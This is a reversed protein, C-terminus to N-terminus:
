RCSAHRPHVSSTCTDVASASSNGNTLQHQGNQRVRCSDYRFAANVARLLFWAARRRPGLVLRAARSHCSLNALPARDPPTPLRPSPRLLRCDALVDALADGLRDGAPEPEAANDGSRADAPEGRDGLEGLSGCHLGSSICDQSISSCACVASSSLPVLTGVISGPGDLPPRRIGPRASGCCPWSCWRSLRGDRRPRLLM